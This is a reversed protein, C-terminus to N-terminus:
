RFLACFIVLDPKEEAILEPLFVQVARRGPRGVVDGVVLVKLM